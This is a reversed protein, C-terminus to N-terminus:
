EPESDLVPQGGLICDSYQDLYVVEWSVTM